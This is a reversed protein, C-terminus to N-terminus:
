LVQLLLVLGAFLGLLLYIVVHHKSVILLLAVLALPTLRLVLAVLHPPPFMKACRASLPCPWPALLPASLLLATTTACHATGLAILWAHHNQTNSLQALHPPSLSSTTAPTGRVVLGM